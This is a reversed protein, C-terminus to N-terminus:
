KIQALVEADSLKEEESAKMNESVLTIKTLLRSSRFSIPTSLISIIDKGQGNQAALEKDEQQLAHKKAEYIEVSTNHFIDIPAKAEKISKFPLSEVLWKRFQPTGLRVITPAVIKHQFATPATSSRHDETLIRTYLTPLHVFTFQKAALM